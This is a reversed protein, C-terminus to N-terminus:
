DWLDVGTKEAQPMTVNPLEIWVGAAFTPTQCTDPNAELVATLIHSAQAADTPTYYLAVILDLTDGDTTRHRM